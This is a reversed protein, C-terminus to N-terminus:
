QKAQSFNETQVNIMGNEREVVILPSDKRKNIVNSIVSDRLYGGVIIGKDSDCIVNSIVINRMSDPMNEGYGGGDGLLITGGHTKGEPTTDTVNDIIINWINAMAPLLRVTFCLNSYAMVNRITINHIDKDRKTWDNHMVHTSNLSGGPCYEDEAIATLAIVDDGTRGTIDSIIIDHCGNRIDIGDQNEMNNRLGDIMKSMCADFCIKEVYGDACEELSIAWGHSDQIHINKISFYETNAFLIGIGRWDGYQSEETGADTGYSHNHRDWFDITDESRRKEPIWSAMSCLDKVEYPCPNALIKSSDGTARPHDAGILTCLGEGLIHVNKIRKPFEIGLGCNATRFFNDRCKDSLKITSNQMIVTTNEELLVARDILWYKREPETECERPPIIVIGDSTKNAMAKEFMESDTCACFDNINVM